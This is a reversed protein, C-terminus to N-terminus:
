RFRGALIVASLGALEGCLRRVFGGSPLRIFKSGFDTFRESWQSNYM